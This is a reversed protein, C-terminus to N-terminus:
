THERDTLTAWSGTKLYKTTGTAFTVAIRNRMQANQRCTAGPSM